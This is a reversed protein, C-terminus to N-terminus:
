GQKNELLIDQFYVALSKVRSRRYAPVIESDLKEPLQGGPCLELSGVRPENGRESTM